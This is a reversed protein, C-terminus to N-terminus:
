QGSFWAEWCVTCILLGPTEGDHGCSTPLGTPPHGIHTGPSCIESCSSLFLLEAEVGAFERVVLATEAVRGGGECSHVCIDYVCIYMICAYRWREKAVRGEGMCSNVFVSQICAHIM